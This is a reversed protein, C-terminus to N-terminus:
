TFKEMQDPLTEKEMLNVKWSNVLIIQDMLIHLLEKGQFSGMRLNVLINLAM